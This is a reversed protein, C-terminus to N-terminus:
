LSDCSFHARNPILVAVSRFQSYPRRLGTPGAFISSRAHRSFVGLGDEIDGVGCLDSFLIKAAAEDGSDKKM